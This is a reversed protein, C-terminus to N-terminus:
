QDNLQFKICGYGNCHIYTDVYVIPIGGEKDKMAKIEKLTYGNRELHEIASIDAIIQSDIVKEKKWGTKSERYKRDILGQEIYFNLKRQLKIKDDLSKQTHMDTYEKLSHTKFVEKPMWKDPEKLFQISESPMEVSQGMVKGKLLITNVARLFMGIVDLDNYASPILSDLQIKCLMAALFACVSVFLEPKEKNIPKGIIKKLLKIDNGVCPIVKFSFWESLLDVWRKLEQPDTIHMKKAYCHIDKRKERIIHTIFLIFGDGEGLVYIGNFEEM